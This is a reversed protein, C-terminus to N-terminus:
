DAEGSQNVACEYHVLAGQFYVSDEELAEGCLYCVVESM